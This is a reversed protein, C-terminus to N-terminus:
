LFGIWNEPMKHCFLERRRRDREEGTHTEVSFVPCKGQNGTNERKKDRTEGEGGRGIRTSFRDRKGPYGYITKIKIRRYDVHVKQFAPVGVSRSSTEM